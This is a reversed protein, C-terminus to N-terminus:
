RERVLVSVTAGSVAVVAALLVELTLVTATNRTEVRLACGTYKGAGNTAHSVVRVVKAINDSTVLQPNVHPRIDFPASYSITLDGTGNSTGEYVETRKNQVSGLRSTIAADVEFGSFLHAFPHVDQWAGGSFRFAGTGDNVPTCVSGDYNRYGLTHYPNPSPPPDITYYTASLPTVTTTSQYEGSVNCVYYNTM